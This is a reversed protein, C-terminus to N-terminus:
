NKLMFCPTDEMSKYCFLIIGGVFAGSWFLELLRPVAYLLSYM